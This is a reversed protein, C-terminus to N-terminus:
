SLRGEAGSHCPADGALDGFVQDMAETVADDDVHSDNEDTIQSTSHGLIESVVSLPASQQILWSACSHRLSHFSMGDRRLAESPLCFNSGIASGTANM